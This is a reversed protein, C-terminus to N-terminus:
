QLKLHFLGETIILSDPLNWELDPPGDHYLHMQFRGEVTRAISDYRVVEIFDNPNEGTCELTGIVQDFDLVWISLGNVLSNYLITKEEFQYKGISLPIDSIIFNERVDSSGRRVIADLSFENQTNTNLYANFTQEWLLGNRKMSVKGLEILYQPPPPEVVSSEKKCSLFIFICILLLNLNKM